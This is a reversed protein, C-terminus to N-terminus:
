YVTIPLSLANLCLGLSLSPLTVHSVSCVGSFDEVSRLPYPVTFLM